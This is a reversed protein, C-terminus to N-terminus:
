VEGEVHTYVQCCPFIFRPPTEPLSWNGKRQSQFFSGERECTFPLAVVIWFSAGVAQIWLDRSGVSQVLVSVLGALAVAYLMRREGSSKRIGRLLGRGLTFFAMSLLFLGIVGHDYLTGWFLSHPATGVVGKGAVGVHLYALLQDSSQLGGGLWRTVQFNRLLAEWLYLRGNLTAIDASFFRAMFPLSSAWGAALGVSCLLLLSFLVSLRWRLPLCFVVITMGLLVGVFASRTFTLLLTGSLCFLVFLFFSRNMGRAYLCRYFALPILPSLYFAFTTAQTFLSTVRFLGTQRDVEGHQHTVFGYLGALAILLATILLVAILGELRRRTTVLGMTLVGAGASALMTLWLTLFAGSGLPSLGIGLLVWGLYLALWLFGPVRRFIEKWPFCPLLCLLPFILLLDFHNGNFLTLSSGICVDVLSAWTLLLVYPYRLFCLLFVLGISTSLTALANRTTAIIGASLVSLTLALSFLGHRLDHTAFCRKLWNMGSVHHVNLGARECQIRVVHVEAPVHWIRLTGIRRYLCGLLLLSTVLSTASTALAIGFGQWFHVLVADLLANTGVSMCAMLLPVRAEGLANFARSLLFSLAMPALGPVFGSFIAVTARTDAASFAGHQFLLAILPREVLLLVLSLPVMGLVLGWTYLRLTCKFAQYNADGLAAQRALGPLAARGISVFFIGIFMSVIKLAYNFASISGAPLMSTFMQDVLPGGQLILAGLLMPWATSFIVRLDPNRVDLVPRYRLGARRARIGVVLLQLVTGVLGGICLVPIGWLKGGILTLVATTLPVLVGAYAPWGFHGEANLGSELVAIILSLPLALYLLPALVLAQHFRLPDLGPASLFLLSQRTAVFVLVLPVAMLTLANVLTSLLRSASELESHARMRSYVPVVAAELASSLLQVLLLPFAAAVFYADLTAGTGFSASIVVQNVMGGARLLLAAAILSLLARVVQRNVSASIAARWPRARAFAWTSSM